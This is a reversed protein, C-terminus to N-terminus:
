DKKMVMFYFDTGFEYNFKKEFERLRKEQEEKLLAYDLEELPKMHEEEM